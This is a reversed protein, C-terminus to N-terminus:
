KLCGRIRAIYNRMDAIDQRAQTLETLEARQERIVRLLCKVDGAFIQVIGRDDMTQCERDITEVLEDDTM